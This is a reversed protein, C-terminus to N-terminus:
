LFLLSLYYYYHYYYTRWALSVVAFVVIRRKFGLAMVECRIHRVLAVRFGEEGYGIIGILSDPIPADHPLRPESSSRLRKQGVHESTEDESVRRIRQSFGEVGYLALATRQQSAPNQQSSAVATSTKKPTHSPSQTEGGDAAEQTTTAAALSSSAVFDAPALVAAGVADPLLVLGNGEMFKQRGVGGPAYDENFRQVMGVVGNRGETYHTPLREDYVDRRRLYDWLDVGRDRLERLFLVEEETPDGSRCKDSEHLVSDCYLCVHPFRPDQLPQLQQLVDNSSISLLFGRLADTSYRAAALPVVANKLEKVAAAYTAPYLHPAVLLEFADRLDRADEELRRTEEDAPAGTAGSERRRHHLASRYSDIRTLVEHPDLRLAVLQLHERELTRHASTVCRRTTHGVLQCKACVPERREHILKLALALEDKRFAKAPRNDSDIQQMAATVKYAEDPLRLFLLNHSQLVRRAVHLDWPEREAEPIPCHHYDHFPDLCCSCLSDKLPAVLLVEEQARAYKGPTYSAPLSGDVLCLFFSAYRVINDLAEKTKHPLQRRRFVSDLTDVSELLQDWERYRRLPGFIVQEAKVLAPSLQQDVGADADGGSGAAASPAPRDFVTKSPLLAYSAMIWMAHRERPGTTAGRVKDYALLLKDYPRGEQILQTIADLVRETRLPLRIDHQLLVEVADLFSLRQLSREWPSLVASGGDGSSRRQSALVPAGGDSSSSELLPRRFPLECPCQAQEHMWSDCLQCGGKAEVLREMWRRVSPHMHPDLSRLVESMSQPMVYSTKRGNQFHNSQTALADRKPAWGYCYLTHCAIVPRPKSRRLRWLADRYRDPIKFWEAAQPDLYNGEREVKQVIKKLHQYIDSRWMGKWQALLQRHRQVLQELDDASVPLHSFAAPGNVMSAPIVRRARSEQLVATWPSSSPGAAAASPPEAGERDQAPASPTPIHRPAKTFWRHAILHPLFASIKEVLPSKAIENEVQSCALLISQLLEWAGIRDRWDTEESDVVRWVLARALENPYQQAHATAFPLLHQKEADVSVVNSKVTGLSSSVQICCRYLMSTNIRVDTTGTAPAPAAADAMALSHVSSPRDLLFLVYVILTEGESPSRLLLIYVFFSTSVSKKVEKGVPQAEGETRRHSEKGRLAKNIKEETREIATTIGKIKHNNFSDSLPPFFPSAARSSAERAARKKKNTQKTKKERRDSKEANGKLLHRFILYSLYLSLTLFFIHQQAHLFCCQKCSVVRHPPARSGVSTAGIRIRKNIIIAPICLHYTTYKIIIFKFTFRNPLLPMACHALSLSISLFSLSFSLSLFFHVDVSTGRSSRLLLVSRGMMGGPSDMASSVCQGHSTSLTNVPSSNRTVMRRNIRRNQLPAAEGGSEREKERAGARRRRQQLTEELLATAASVWKEPSLLDPSAACTQRLYREAQRELLVTLPSQYARCAALALATAWCESRDLCDDPIATILKARSIGLCSGFVATLEFSGNRHQLPILRHVDAPSLATRLINFVVSRVFDSTLVQKSPMCAAIPCESPRLPKKTTDYAYLLKQHDELRPAYTAAVSVYSAAVTQKSTQSEVVPVNTAQQVLQTFPTPLAFAFSIAKTEDAVERTLAAGGGVDPDALFSVRAAAATLHLLGMSLPEGPTSRSVFPASALPCECNFESLVSGCNGSVVVRLTSATKEPLLLYLHRQQGAPIVPFREGFSQRVPEDSSTEDQSPITLRINTLTPVATEAVVRVLAAATEEVTEAERFVGGTEQALLSFVPIQIDPSFSLTVASVRCKHAYRVVTRVLAAGHEAKVGEDSLLVINRAYGDVIRGGGRGGQERVCAELLLPVRSSGTKPRQPTLEEIFATVQEVEVKDLGQSGDMYVVVDNGDDRPLLFNVLVSSPLGPLVQRLSDAMAKSSELSHSDLIFVLEANIDDVYRPGRLPAFSIGVAYKGAVQLLAKSAEESGTAEMVEAFLRLPELTPAVPCSVLYPQYVIKDANESYHLTFQTDGEYTVEAGDLVAEKGALCGQRLLRVEGRLPHFLTADVTIAVGPKLVKPTNLRFLTNYELVTQPPRQLSPFLEPPLVFEFVDSKLACPLPVHYTAVAYISTGVMLEWPIYQSAVRWVKGDPSSLTGVASAAEATSFVKTQEFGTTLEHGDYQVTCNMLQWLLPVPYVMIVRQNETTENICELHLEVRVGFGLIKVNAHVAHLTLPQYGKTTLAGGREKSPFSSFATSTVHSMTNHM